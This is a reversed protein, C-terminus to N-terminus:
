SRITCQPIHMYVSGCENGVVATRSRVFCLFMRFLHFQYDMNDKVTDRLPARTNTGAERVFHGFLRSSARVVARGDITECGYYKPRPHRPLPVFCRREISGLHRAKYWRAGQVRDDLVGGTGGAATEAEGPDWPVSRYGAGHKMVGGSISVGILTTSPAPFSGAQKNQPLPPPPTSPAATPTNQTSINPFRPRRQESVTLNLNTKRTEHFAKSPQLFRSAEDTKERPTSITPNISVDDGRKRWLSVM